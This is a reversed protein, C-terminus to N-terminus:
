TSSTSGKTQTSTSGKTQTSTTSTSGKTKGRDSAM